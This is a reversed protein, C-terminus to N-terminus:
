NASLSDPYKDPDISSLVVDEYITIDSVQKVNEAWAAFADARRGRTLNSLIRGRVQDYSQVDEALKDVVYFVSWKGLTKIPGGM